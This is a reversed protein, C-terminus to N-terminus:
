ANQVKGCHIKIIIKTKNLFISLTYITNEFLCNAFLSTSCFERRETIFVPWNTNFLIPFHPWTFPLFQLFWFLVIGILERCDILISSPLVPTQTSCIDILGHRLSSFVSKPSFFPRKHRKQCDTVYWSAVFHRLARSSRLSGWSNIAISVFFIGIRCKLM